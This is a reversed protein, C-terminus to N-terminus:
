RRSVWGSVSAPDQGDRFDYETKDWAAIEDHLNDLVFNGEATLVAHCVFRPTLVMGIGLAPEPLDLHILVQRKALM